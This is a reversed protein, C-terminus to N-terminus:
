SANRSVLIVAVQAQIVDVALMAVVASTVGALEEQCILCDDLLWRDEESGVTVPGEPFGAM